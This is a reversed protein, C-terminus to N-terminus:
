DYKKKVALLGLIGLLLLGGILVIQNGIKNLWLYTFHKASIGFLSIIYPLFWFSLIIFLLCVLFALVQKFNLLNLIAFLSFVFAFVFFIISLVLFLIALGNNTFTSSNIYTNLENTIQKTPSLYFELEFELTLSSPSTVSKVFLSLNGYGEKLDCCFTTEENPFSDFIAVFLTNTNFSSFFTNYEGFSSLYDKKNDESWNADENDDFYINNISFKKRQFNHSGEIEIVQASDILEDFTNVNPLNNIAKAALTSPIYCGSDAGNRGDTLRYIAGNTRFLPLAINQMIKEDTYLHIGSISCDTCLTNTNNTITFTRKVGDDSLYCYPNLITKSTDLSNTLDIYNIVNKGLLHTDNGKNSFEAHLFNSNKDSISIDHLNLMESELRTSNNFFGFGYSSCIFSFTFFLALISKKSILFGFRFKM